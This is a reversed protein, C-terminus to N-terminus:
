EIVRKWREERSEGNSDPTSRLLMTNKDPQVVVERFQTGVAVPNMVVVQTYVLANGEVRYTFGLASFQAENKDNWVRAYNVKQKEAPSM